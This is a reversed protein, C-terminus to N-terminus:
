VVVQPYRSLKVTSHDHVGTNLEDREGETEFEDELLLCFLYDKMMIASLLTDEYDELDNEDALNLSVLKTILDDDQISDVNGSSRQMSSFCQGQNNFHSSNEFTKHRPMLIPVSSLPPLVSARDHSITQAGIPPLSPVAPYNRNGFAGTRPSSNMTSGGLLPSVNATMENRAFPQQYGGQVSRINTMNHALTSFFSAANTAAVSNRLLTEDSVIPPLVTQLRAGLQPTYVPEYSPLENAVLQQLSILPMGVNTPSESGTPSPAAVNNKKEDPKSVKLVRKSGSKPGRKKKVQIHSEIHIKLHKKLDQPRKFNKGCKSCKFPKLSVHVRLHSTIHDRKETKAQCNGWKCNLQLNQQSRRGVHDKCLHHYLLEAQNFVQGCQDWQCVLHEEESGSSIESQPTSVNTSNQEDYSSRRTGESHYTDNDSHDNCSGNSSASSAPSPMNGHNKASGDNRQLGRLEPLASKNSPKSVGEESEYNLIDKLLVM